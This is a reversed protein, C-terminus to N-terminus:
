QAWEASPASGTDQTTKTGVATQHPPVTGPTWTVSELVLGLRDGHSTGATAGKQRRFGKQQCVHGEGVGTKLARLTLAGNTFREIGTPVATGQGTASLCHSSCARGPRGALPAGRLVARTARDRCISSPPNQHRHQQGSGRGVHGGTAERLGVRSLM